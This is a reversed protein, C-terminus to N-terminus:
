VEMFLSSEAIRRLTLGHLVKKVGNVTAKDWKLFESSAEKFKGMNVKKLLTSAAFNGDGCNYNFSVLAALQNDTLTIGKTKDLVNNSFKQLDTHLLLEADSESALHFMETCQRYAEAKDVAGKLFRTNDTTRLAHGYGATWIGAPCMKPQLGILTLDGDHLSEFHKILEIGKNNIM